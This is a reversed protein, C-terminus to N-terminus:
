REHSVFTSDLYPAATPRFEPPFIKAQDEPSGSSEGTQLLPDAPIPGLPGDM